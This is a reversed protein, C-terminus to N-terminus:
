AVRNHAVHSGFGEETTPLEAHLARMVDDSRHVFRFFSLFAVVLGVYILVGILISM